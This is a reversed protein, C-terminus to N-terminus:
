LSAPERLGQSNRATPLNNKNPLWEETKPPHARAAAAVEKLSATLATEMLARVTTPATRSRFVGFRVEPLIPLRANKVECFASPRVTQVLLAAM